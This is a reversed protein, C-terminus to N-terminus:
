GSRNALSLGILYCLDVTELMPKKSYEDIEVKYGTVAILIQKAQDYPAKLANVEKELEVIRNRQNNYHWNNSKIANVLEDKRLANLEKETLKFLDDLHM